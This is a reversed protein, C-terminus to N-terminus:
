FPLSSLSSDLEIPGIELNAYLKLRLLILLYHAAVLCKKIVFSEKAIINGM